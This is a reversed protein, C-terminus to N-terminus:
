ILVIFIVSFKSFELRDGHRSNSEACECGESSGVFTYCTCSTSCMTVPTKSSSGNSVSTTNTTSGFITTDIATTYIAQTQVFTQQSETEFCITSQEYKENNIEIESSESSVTTKLISVVPTAQIKMGIMDSVTSSFKNSQEPSSDHSGSSSSGSDTNSMEALTLNKERSSSTPSTGHYYSVNPVSPSFKHKLIVIYNNQYPHIPM